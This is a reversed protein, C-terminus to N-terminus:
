GKSILKGLFAGCCWGPCARVQLLVKMNRLQELTCVDFRHALTRKSM